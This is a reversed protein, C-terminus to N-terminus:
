KVRMKLQPSLGRKRREQRVGSKSQKETTQARPNAWKVEIRRGEVVAVSVFVGERHRMTWDLNLRLSHSNDGFFFFFFLRM